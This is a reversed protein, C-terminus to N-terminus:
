QPLDDPVHAVLETGDELRSPRRGIQRTPAGSRGAQVIRAPLDSPGRAFRQDHIRAARGARRASQWLRDAKAKNEEARDLGAPNGRGNARRAMEAEYERAATAWEKSNAILDTVNGPRRRTGAQVAVLLDTAERYRGRLILDHASGPQDLAMVLANFQNLVRNGPEGQLERFFPPLLEIPIRARFYQVLRGATDSGGEAAPLFAFLLRPLADPGPPCWLRVSDRGASKRFRDRQAVPDAAVRITEEGVVGQLFRMRPGIASLPATVRVEARKARDPTVDYGAKPGLALPEFPDAQSRAQRFTLVGRGHPGPLPMGLRVDLLYIEGDALVGVAWTAAPGAGADGIVAADVGMQRLLAILVYTGEIPSGAGRIAVFGVPVTPGTAPIPRINRAVWALAAEAKALPPLKEVDLSSRSTAFSFPRTWTIPMLRRLSPDSSRPSKVPCFSLNGNSSPGSARPFRSAPRRDAPMQPLYKNLQDVLRRSTTPDPSKRVDERIAEVQEEGPDKAQFSARPSTSQPPPTCGALAVAIGVPLVRWSRFGAFTM